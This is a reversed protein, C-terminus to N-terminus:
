SRNFGLLWDRFPQNGPLACWRALLMVVLVAFVVRFALLGILSAGLLSVLLTDEVLSHCLALFSMSLLIDKRPVLGSRADQILLAGGFALGLVTGVVTINTAERGIGIQALLPALLRHMIAEVGIGRLVRMLVMLAAIVVLIILLTELQTLLWQGWSDGRPEPTWVLRAPEQFADFANLAHFCIAGSVIAGGLRLLLTLRWPIGAERAISGEILLNHAVLMMVGLSTMQAVSLQQAAPLDVLTAMGAYINGLLTAAWVLALEGPLGVLAMLPEMANGLWQIAGAVELLRVVVLVPIMIKLLVLYTSTIQRALSYAEAKWFGQVPTQSSPPM